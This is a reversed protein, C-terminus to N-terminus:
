AVQARAPSESSPSGLIKSGTDVVVEGNEVSIEFYDLSRPAPGEIYFGDHTFKSGHCPCEFRWNSEVWKYLCGLHTCVMYLAKPQGEETTVLWFKGDTFPRPAEDPSPLTNEPGIFFKGGFEGARFRPYLYFFSVVGGELALLGLAAGWAYTLFERRNMEAPSPLGDAAEPTAKPAAKPAAAPRAKPAATGNGSVGASEAPRQRPARAPAAAKEAEKVPAEVAKPAQSEQAQPRAPAAEAAEAARAKPAAPLEGAAHAAKARKAAEQMKKKLEAIRKEREEGTLESIKEAM